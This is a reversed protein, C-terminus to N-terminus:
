IAVTKMEDAVTEVDLKTAGATTSTEEPVSAPANVSAKGKGPPQNEKSSMSGSLTTSPFDGSPRPTDISVLKEPPKSSRKLTDSDTRLTLPTPAPGEEAVRALPSSIHPRMPSSVLPGKGNIRHPSRGREGTSATPSAYPSSTSNDFVPGSANPNIRLGGGSVRKRPPRRGYKQDCRWRLIELFPPEVGQQKFPQLKLDGTEEDVLVNNGSTLDDAFNAMFAAWSRAVVFKCDYDRGFIIIQGWKGAPGPSIDVALCNGGWDRALPIWSRHAYAKQVANPPQSEQKGLLEEKWIGNSQPTQAVPISPSTSSSPGAFAKAPITPTYSAAPQNALYQENVARWNSWEEVIEECDLLMCGFLVGTPRGGREQGDHIQLSERVDSPLSCDLELELETVDNQTCPESLNDFLEGYNDEMWRDIRKWSHSVPPPPPLGDAFNQMQIDTIPSKDTSRRERDNSIRRQASRMGPSYPTPASNSGNPGNQAKIGNIAPLEPQSTSGLDIRSDTASTAVSTLPAHRSQPLPVHQGTKYPSNYSAHRDNSTVSHWFSRWTDAAM